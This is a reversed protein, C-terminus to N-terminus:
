IRRLREVDGAHVIKTESNESIVRLAGNEEIGDTVGCISETGLAVRVSKGKAYSSRETWMRRIKEAGDESTLIEYAASFNATLKEIIADANFSAGSNAAIEQEISTAIAGIEAPFNSSKLNIGIGVIVALGKPTDGTEALIGSIKKNNVHVDNAWKIDSKIGFAALTEYVAIAAAFTILPLFKNEIRPRLVISFYLGADKESIWVRGHRGRGKTQRRAVVCLGEDAGRKAQNMAEVNTSELEDYRLITIKM